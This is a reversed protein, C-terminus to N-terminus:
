FFMKRFRIQVTRGTPDILARQYGIPTAGSADYVSQRDNFLNTVEISLRSGILFPYRILTKGRRAPDFFLRLDVTGLDAFRLDGSAGGDITTGSRWNFGARAGLGNGFFGFDAEIAHRSAGGSASVADGALLDLPTAGEFVTVSDELAITHYVSVNIRGDRGGRRGGGGRFGGRGGTPRNANRSEERTSQQDSGISASGKKGADAQESRRQNRQARDLRQRFIERLKVREDETLEAQKAEISKSFNFGYRVERRATEAYNIPRADIELLAGNAARVFREPFAAEVDPTLSPFESIPNFIRQDVFSANFTLEKDEFDFPDISLNLRYVRRDDNRLDSTGGTTRTVNEVTTGTVFDFVRVNPTRIVPDGLQAVSPAGQEYAASGILRVAGVPRWNVSYGYTTLSGFDSLYDIRANGSITLDGLPAATAGRKFIPADLNLQANGSDRVLRRTTEMLDADISIGRLRLFDGGVNLSASLGGAPLEILEGYVLGEIGGSHNVTEASERVLTVSGPRLPAFPNVDGNAISAQLATTEIGRDTETRVQGFAYRANVSWTWTSPAGDFAASVEGNWQDILRRLAEPTEFLRAVVVEDSFPSYVSSAPLQLDAGAYGLLAESTQFDLGGTVTVAVDGFIARTQSATLAIADRRPALTRVGTSDTTNPANPYFEELAIPRNGASVPAGAVTVVEGAIASLSADIEGGAIPALINGLLARDSSRSDQLNRESELLKTAHSASVDITSRRSGRIRLQNIDAAGEYQGGETAALTTAEVTRARFRERLVFNVVRQDARFGYKLAVEEPLIEVREVAETPLEFIERRSAVRRGNLLIAPRGGARGSGSRTQPALEELLDAITSVGYSRVESANLTIEPEIDGIVTGRRREGVVVVEDEFAFPDDSAPPQAALVGPSSCAIVLIASTSLRRKAM